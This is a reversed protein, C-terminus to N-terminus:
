PCTTALAQLAQGLGNLSYTDTTATGRESTAQVVLKAGRKMAEILKLEETADAVFARDEKSFLKFQEKGVTVTVESATKIPYGLKVSVESKVGDKPWASIYLLIRARNAGAPEKLKPESAAFCLKEGAAGQHVIWDGFKGTEVAGQGAPQQALAGAAALALLGSAVLLRKAMVQHMIQYVLKTMARDSTGTAPLSGNQM